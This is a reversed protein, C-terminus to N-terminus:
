TGASTRPTGTTRRWSSTPRPSGRIATQLSTIEPANIVFDFTLLLESLPAMVFVYACPRGTEAAETMQKWWLDMLRRGERRSVGLIEQAATSVVVGGRV